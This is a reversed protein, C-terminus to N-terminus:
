TNGVSAERRIGFHNGSSLITPVVKADGIACILVAAGRRKRIEVNHVFMWNRRDDFDFFCPFGFAITQFFRVSM